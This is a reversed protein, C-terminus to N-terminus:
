GKNPCWICAATSRKRSRVLVAENATSWSKAAEIKAGAGALTELVENARRRRHRGSRCNRWPRDDAGARAARRHRRRACDDDGRRRHQQVLDHRRGRARGDGAGRSGADNRRGRKRSGQTRGQSRRRPRMRRFGRRSPPFHVPDGHRGGQPRTPFCVVEPKRGADAFRHARRPDPDRAREGDSELYRRDQKRRRRTGRLRPRASHRRRVAHPNRAGVSLARRQSHTRGEGARPGADRERSRDVLSHRRDASPRRRHRGGSGRRGLSDGGTSWRRLDRRRRGHLRRLHDEGADVQGRREGRGPRANGRRASGSRCRHACPQRPFGQRRRARQAAPKDNLRLDHHRGRTPILGAPRPPLSAARPHTTM